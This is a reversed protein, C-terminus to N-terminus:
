HLHQGRVKLMRLFGHRRTNALRVNSKKIESEFPVLASPEDVQTQEEGSGSSLDAPDCGSCSCACRRATCSRCYVSDPKCRRNCRSGHPADEGRCCICRGIPVWPARRDVIPGGKETRARKSRQEGTGGADYPEATTKETMSLDGQPSDGIVQGVPMCWSAGLTVCTKLIGALQKLELCVSVMTNTHAGPMCM